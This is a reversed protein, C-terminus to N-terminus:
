LKISLKKDEWRKLTDVLSDTLSERSETHLTDYFPILYNDIMGVADMRRYMTATDNHLKNAVSGVCSAVFGMLIQPHSLEILDTM